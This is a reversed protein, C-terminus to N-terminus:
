DSPAQLTPEKVRSAEAPVRAASPTARMARDLLDAFPKAGLREFLAAAGDAAERAGPESPGLM